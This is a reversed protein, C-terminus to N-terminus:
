FLLKLSTGGGLFILKLRLVIFHAHTNYTSFIQKVSVTMDKVSVTMDYINYM